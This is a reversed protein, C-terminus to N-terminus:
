DDVVAVLDVNDLDDGPVVVALGVIDTGDLTVLGIAVIPNVTEVVGGPQVHGGVVGVGELGTGEGLDVLVLDIQPGPRM